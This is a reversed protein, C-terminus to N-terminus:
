ALLYIIVLLLSYIMHALVNSETGTNMPTELFSPESSEQLHVSEGSGKSDAYVFYKNFGPLGM